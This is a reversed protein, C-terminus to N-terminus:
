WIEHGGTWDDVSTVKFSCGATYDGGVAYVYDNKLIPWKAGKLGISLNSCIDGGPELTAPNVLAGGDACAIVAPMASAASIKASNIRAKKRSSNLNVLIIAALIGIIAVVILIEILTFAKKNNM